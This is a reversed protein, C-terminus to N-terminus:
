QKNLIESIRKRLYQPSLPKKIYEVVGKMLAKIELDENGYATIIIVPIWSKKEIIAKLVEFGNGDPLSYDVIALNIDNNILSIAESYGSAEMINYERELSSRIIDRVIEEDEVVLISKKYM